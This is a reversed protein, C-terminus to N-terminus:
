QYAVTVNFTGSYSGLPQNPAVAMSAGVAVPTTGSGDTIGTYGADGSFPLAQGNQKVETITVDITAAGPGTMQINSDFTVGYAVNAAPTISLLLPKALSNGALALGGGGDVTATGKAAVTVTGGLAADVLVINGFTPQQTVAVNIPGLLTTTVTATAVNSAALPLAALVLTLVGLKLKM